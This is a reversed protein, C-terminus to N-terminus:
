SVKVIENLEDASMQGGTVRGVYLRLDEQSIENDDDFDHLSFAVRLKADRNGPANFAAVGIVFRRFDIVTRNVEYGFCRSIRDKLPNERIASLSLFADETLEETHNTQNLFIKRLRKIELIKFGSVMRYEEQFLISIM